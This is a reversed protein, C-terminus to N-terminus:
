VEALFEKFHKQVNLNFGDAKGLRFLSEVDVKKCFAYAKVDEYLVPSVTGEVDFHLDYPFLM